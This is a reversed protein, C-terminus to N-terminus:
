SCKSSGHKKLAPCSCLKRAAFGELVPKEARGRWPAALAAPSIAVPLAAISSCPWQSAVTVWFRVGSWFTGLKRPQNGNGSTVPLLATGRARHQAAAVPEGARPLCRLRGARLEEGIEVARADLTADARRAVAQRHPLARLSETLSGFRRSTRFKREVEGYM